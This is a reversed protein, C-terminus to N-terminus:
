ARGGCLVGVTRPLLKKFIVYTLFCLAICSINCIFYGAFLGAEGWHNAQVYLKRMVVIVIGHSAFIFFSGPAIALLSRKCFDFECLGEALCLLAPVGLLISFSQLIGPFVMYLQLLSLAIFLICAALGTGKRFSIQPFSEMRSIAGGLLVYFLGIGIPGIIHFGYVIFCILLSLRPARDLMWNLAPALVVLIILHKIFWFQYALPYLSSFGFVVDMLEFINKHALKGSNFFPALFPVAMSFIYFLFIMMNWSVYPVLLTKARKLLLPVYFSEGQRRKYLMLYGSLTFFAPVCSNFLIISFLREFQYAFSASPNCESVEITSGHIFVVMLLLMTRFINLRESLSNEIKMM